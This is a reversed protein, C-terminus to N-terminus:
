ERKLRVRRSEQDGNSSSSPSGVTPAAVSRLTTRFHAMQSGNRPETSLGTSKACFLYWYYAYARSKSGDPTKVATTKIGSVDSGAFAALNSYSGHLFNNGEGESIALCIFKKGSLVESVVKNRVQENGFNM